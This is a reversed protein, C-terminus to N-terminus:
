AFLTEFPNEVDLERIMSFTQSDATVLTKIGHALVTAALHADAFRGRLGPHKEMLKFARRVIVDDSYLVVPQPYRLLKDVMKWAAAPTLPKIVFCGNTLIQSLEHLSQECVCAAWKGSVSQEFLELARAHFPSATDAAYILISTDLCKM